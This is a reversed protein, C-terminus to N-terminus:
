QMPSFETIQWNHGHKEKKTVVSVGGVQPVANGVHM